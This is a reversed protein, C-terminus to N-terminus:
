PPPNRDRSPTAVSGQDCTPKHTSPHGNPLTMGGSTKTPRDRAVQTAVPEPRLLRERGAAERAAASRGPQFLVVVGLDELRRRPEVAGSFWGSSAAFAWASFEASAAVPDFLPAARVTM